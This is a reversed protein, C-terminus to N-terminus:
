FLYHEVVHLVRHPIRYRPRKRWDLKVAHVAPLVCTKFIKASRIFPNIDAFIMRGETDGHAGGITTIM